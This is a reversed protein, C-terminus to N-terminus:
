GFLQCPDKYGRGTNKIERLSSVPMSQQPHPDRSVFYRNTMLTAVKGDHDTHKEANRDAFVRSQCDRCGAIPRGANMTAFYEAGCKCEIWYKEPESTNQPQVVQQPMQPQPKILEASALGFVQLSVVEQMDIAVFESNVHQACIGRSLKNRKIENILHKALHEPLDFELKGGSALGITVPHLNSFLENEEDTSTLNEKCKKEIDMLDSYKDHNVQLEKNLAILSECEADMERIATMINDNISKDEPCGDPYLFDVLEAQFKENGSIEAYLEQNREIYEANKEQLHCNQQFLELCEKTQFEFRNESLKLQTQLENIQGIYQQRDGRVYAVIDCMSPNVPGDGNPHLIGNIMMKLRDYEALQEKLEAIQQWLNDVLLPEQSPDANPVVAHGYNYQCKGAIAGPDVPTINYKLLFKRAPCEEYDSKTCPKCTSEIVFEYWDQFDDVAMPMISQLDLMEKHAKKAEPTPLFMVNLKTIAQLLNSRADDDLYGIRVETAKHLRTKSHRLDALFSKDINELDSYIELIKELQVKLIMLRVLNNKEDRGLYSNM